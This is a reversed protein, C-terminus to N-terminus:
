MYAATAPEVYIIKHVRREFYMSNPYNFQGDFVRINHSTGGVVTFDFVGDMVDGGTGERGIYSGDLFVEYGRMKQSQITVPTDGSYAAAQQPISTQPPMYGAPLMYGAPQMTAPQTITEAYTQPETTPEQSFVDAIVVNSPQNNVVFYLMHRGIQDATYDMTNYGQFFQYTRYNLSTTNNQVIEYFGGSGEVPVRAVLQLTTGVPCALYQTWNMLGQFWLDNAKSPMLSAYQTYPLGQGAGYFVSYPTGQRIDFKVPNSVIGGVIPEGVIIYYERFPTFATGPVAHRYFSVDSSYWPYSTVPMDLWRVMGAIGPEMTKWRDSGEPSAVYGGGLYDDEQGFSIQILLCAAIVNICLLMGYRMQIVWYRKSIKLM